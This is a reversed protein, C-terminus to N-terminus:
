NLRVDAEQLARQWRDQKWAPFHKALWEQRARDWGIDKGLKESEIWKYRKIEEQQSRNIEALPDKIKHRLTM